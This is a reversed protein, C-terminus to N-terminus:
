TRHSPVFIKDCAKLPVFEQAMFRYQCWVEYVCWLPLLVCEGPHLSLCFELGTNYWPKQERVEEPKLFCGRISVGENVTVYQARIPM